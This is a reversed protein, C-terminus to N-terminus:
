TTQVKRHEFGFPELLSGLWVGRVDAASGWDEPGPGMERGGEALAFVHARELAGTRAESEGLHARAAYYRRLCPLRGRLVWVLFSLM